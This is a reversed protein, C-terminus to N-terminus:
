DDGFSNSKYHLFDAFPDWKVLNSM